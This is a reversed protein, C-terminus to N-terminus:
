QGFLGIQTPSKQLHYLRNCKSHWKIEIELRLRGPRKEVSHPLLSRSFQIISQSELNFFHCELHLLSYRMNQSVCEDKGHWKYLPMIEWSYMCSNHWMYWRTMWTHSMVWEHTHCSENTHTVHSMWGGRKFRHIIVWPNTMDCMPNNKGKILLTKDCQFTMGCLRIPWSMCALTLDCTHFPWTYPIGCMYMLWTVCRFSDHWVYVHTRYCMQILRTVCICSDQLVDSHTTDCM